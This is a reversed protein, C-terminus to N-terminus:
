KNQYGWYWDAWTKCKGLFYFTRAYLIAYILYCSQKYATEHLSIVATAIVLSIYVQDCYLLWVWSYWQWICQCLVRVTIGSTGIWRSNYTHARGNYKRKIYMVIPIPLMTILQCSVVHVLFAIYYSSIM